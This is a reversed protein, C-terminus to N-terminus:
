AFSKETNNIPWNSLALITRFHSGSDLFSCEVKGKLVLQRGEDRRGRVEGLLM